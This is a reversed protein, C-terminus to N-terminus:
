MTSRPAVTDVGYVQIEYNDQACAFATLALTTLAFLLALRSSRTMPDPQCAALSARGIIWSARTRGSSALSPGQSSQRGVLHRINCVRAHGVPAFKSPM